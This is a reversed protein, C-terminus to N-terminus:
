LTPVPTRQDALFAVRIIGASRVGDLTEKVTGWRARGDAVIYVKREVERDTLREQIKTSLTGRYIQEAGFYVKGDRLITIKMADERRAGRMAVPHLVKPLDASVGRHPNYAMTGPTMLMFLLVVLISAFATADISSFLKESRRAGQVLEM